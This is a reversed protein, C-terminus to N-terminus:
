YQLMQITAGLHELPAGWMDSRSLALELQALTNDTQNLLAWWMKGDKRQVRAFAGVPADTGVLDSATLITNSGTIASAPLGLRRRLVDLSYSTPAFGLSFRATGARTGAQPRFNDFRVQRVSGGIALKTSGQRVGGPRVLELEVWTSGSPFVYEFRTRCTPTLSSLSEVWVIQSRGGGTILYWKGAAVGTASTLLVTNGGVTTAGNTTTSLGGSLVQLFGLDQLSEPYHARTIRRTTDPTFQVAGKIWRPHNRATLTYDIGSEQGQSLPVSVRTYDADCADLEGLFTAGEEDLAAGVLWTPTRGIDEGDTFLQHPDALTGAGRVKAFPLGLALAFHHLDVSPLRGTLAYSLWGLRSGYASRSVDSELDAREASDALRTQMVEGLDFATGQVVAEGTLHARKFGYHVNINAGSPAGSQVLAEWDEGAGVLLVKKDAADTGSALTAATAGAAVAGNLTTNLVGGGSPTQRIAYLAALKDFLNARLPM